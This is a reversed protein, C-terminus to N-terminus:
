GLILKNYYVFNLLLSPIYGALIEHRPHLGRFYFWMLEQCEGRNIERVEKNEEKKQIRM